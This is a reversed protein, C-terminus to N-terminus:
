HYITTAGWNNKMRECLWTLMVLFRPDLDSIHGHRVTKVIDAKPSFKDIYLFQLGGIVDPRIGFLAASKDPHASPPPLPTVVVNRSGDRKASFKDAVSDDLQFSIGSLGYIVDRAETWSLDRVRKTLAVAPVIARNLFARVAQLKEARTIPKPHAMSIF